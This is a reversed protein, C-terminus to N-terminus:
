EMSLKGLFEQMRQNESSFVEDPTGQMAIAGKDMFIIRDAVNRAFKMEHTVIVMTMHEVALNKIVRLIEGTLEPDLASTPEDFFLMKAKLALARAISVRQQQGGSLQHPYADAKDALGMKKLLNEAERYVIEKDRKQVRIPADTINKIVSFHPFLNFNQFVLGFCSEIERRQQKKAWFLKGNETWAAKQGMYLIEGDEITELMTACRLLTSKGSGSPGIIALIEGQEVSFSIDRIVSVGGFEKKIHKMELLNM